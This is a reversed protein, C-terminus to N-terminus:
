DHYMVGNEHLYNIGDTIQLMITMILLLPHPPGEGVNNKKEDSYKQLNTNV